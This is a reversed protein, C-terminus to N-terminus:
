ALGRILDLLEDGLDGGSALALTTIGLHRWAATDSEQTVLGVVRAHQVRVGDGALLRLGAIVTAADRGNLIV